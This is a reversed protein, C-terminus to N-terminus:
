IDEIPEIVDWHESLKGNEVRYLDCFISPIGGIDYRGETIALVFNGQGLIKHIKQYDVVVGQGIRAMGTTMLGSFTPM